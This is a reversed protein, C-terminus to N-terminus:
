FMRFIWNAHMPLSYQALFIDEKFHTYTQTHIHTHKAQPNTYLLVWTPKNERGAERHRPSHTGAKHVCISGERLVQVQVVATSLAACLFGYLHAM